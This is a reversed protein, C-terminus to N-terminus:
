SEIYADKYNKNKYMEKYLSFEMLTKVSDVGFRSPADKVKFEQGMVYFSLALILATTLLKKM